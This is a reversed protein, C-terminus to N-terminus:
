ILDSRLAKAVAGSQTQVDLKQYIKGLHFKVTAVSIHMKAGIEKSSLGEALHGLVEIERDSLNYDGKAPKKLEGLVHKAVGAGLAAGGQMVQEFANVIEEVSATKLFYGMAGAEIAQLVKEKREEVTLVVAAVDPALDKLRRIGEVGGMKPLGLDMLVVDPRDGAEIAELFKICSPFTRSCTVREERQLSKQLNRRYGSDDEVIWINIPTM